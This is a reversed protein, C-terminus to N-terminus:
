SEGRFRRLLKGRVYFEAIAVLTFTFIFLVSGIFFLVNYHTDGFVVEAMEAGITASLTRVPKFFDLSMLAANGTAMLVIMTEGFARGVGLLVAAFVGPTAAPLVVLFATQWKTAGLALSAETLDKPIANIADDTVTYIIPIAVLSLAFGGIFANLRYEYGFLYQFLTAIEVLAIFGIIVSPFGSLFEIAVKLYIKLKKPAFFATYLAALIALPAGILVAIITAKFSGIILPLLGFKAEYSIPEWKTGLLNAATVEEKGGLNELSPASELGGASSSTSEAPVQVDGYTEQEEVVGGYTEQQETVGGYTEQQRCDGSYIEQEESSRGYSEQQVETAPAKKEEVHYFIGISERFVFVFILIITIFSTFAVSKIFYEALTEGFRFRKKLGIKRASTKQDAESISM